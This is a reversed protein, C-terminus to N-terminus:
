EQLREFSHRGFAPRPTETGHGQDYPGSSPLNRELPHQFTLDEGRRASRTAEAVIRHEEDRRQAPRKGLQRELLLVAHAVPRARKTGRRREQLAMPLPNGLMLFLKYPSVCTTSISTM